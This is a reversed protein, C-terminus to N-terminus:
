YNMWLVEVRSEKTKGQGSNNAVSKKKVKWGKLTRNYLPSSYGSIIVKGRANKAISLLNIHDEVTMEHQYITASHEERTNPLYPPDLYWLTDEEDWVKMVDFVSMNLIVANKVREAILPLEAIMTEWANVDGPKGGRLRESWAFAKRMGGRSMRRLMYENIGHDVYDDFEQLSRNQAMKFARETYRIRKIRDIFEKPEDRLSKFVAILGKDLDSIVEEKSAAKNLFVSAGACMPEGYTLEEYNEPFNEIVFDSLYYKGGHTKVPPRLKKKKKMKVAM